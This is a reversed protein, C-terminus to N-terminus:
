REAGALPAPRAFFYGQAVPVGIERLVEAQRATEVAEGVMVADIQEAFTALASVMARRLHDADIDTVWTADLKIMDPQLSIIHRMSSFGAGADDVALRMGDARMRLLARNMAMYDSVEEQETLELVVRELPVQSLAAPLHPSMMGAQSLNICVSVEDKLDDLARLACRLATLELEERLGMEGAHRFWGDPTVDPHGTFRALAEYALVRNTHLDVLPQYHMRLGVGGIADVVQGRRVAGGGGVELDARLDPLRPGGPTDDAVNEM